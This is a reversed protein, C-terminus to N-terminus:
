IYELCEYRQLSFNLIWLELSIWFCLTWIRSEYLKSISQIDLIRRFNMKKFAHLCLSSFNKILRIKSIIESTRYFKQHLREVRYVSFLSTILLFMYNLRIFSELFIKKQIIHKNEYYPILILSRIM